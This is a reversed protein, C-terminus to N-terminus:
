NGPRNTMDFIEWFGELTRDTQKRELAMEALITLRIRTKGDGDVYENLYPRTPDLMKELVRGYKSGDISQNKIKKALETNLKDRPLGEYKYFKVENAPISFSNRNKFKFKQETLVEILRM